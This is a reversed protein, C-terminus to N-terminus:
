SFRLLAITLKNKITKKAVLFVNITETKINEQKILFQNPKLCAKNMSSIYSFVVILITMHSTVSFLRFLVFSNFQVSM